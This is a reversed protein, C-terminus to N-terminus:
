KKNYNYIMNYGEYKHEKNLIYSFTQIKGNLMDNLRSRNVTLLVGCNAWNECAKWIKIKTINNESQIEDEM